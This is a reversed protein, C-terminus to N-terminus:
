KAYKKEILAKLLNITTIRIEGYSLELIKTMDSDPESFQKIKESKTKKAKKCVEYKKHNSDPWTTCFVLYHLLYTKKLKINLM